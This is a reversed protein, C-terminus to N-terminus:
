QKQKVNGMGREARDSNNWENENENMWQFNM